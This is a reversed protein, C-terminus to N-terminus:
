NLFTRNQDNLIKFRLFTAGGIKWKNIKKEDMEQM